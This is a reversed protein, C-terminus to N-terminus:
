IRDGFPSQQEIDSSKEQEEHIAICKSSGLDFLPPMSKIDNQKQNDQDSIRRIVKLHRSYIEHLQRNVKKIM